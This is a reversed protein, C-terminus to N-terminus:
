PRSERDAEAASDEPSRTEVTQEVLRSNPVSVSGRPTVLRSNLSGVEELRGEHGDVVVTDGLRFNEKVYYAALVNRAVERGGWAFALALGAAVITILNSFTDTVLGIDFGLHDVTAIVTLAILIWRVIAGLREHPTVGARALGADTGRGLLAALLLGVLLLIVAGILRPVYALFAQIPLESLDLGLNGLALVLFCLLVLWFILKGIIVSTPESLGVRTLSDRLGSEEIQRDLGLRRSARRALASLLWSVLIGFLLLALTALITPAYSVARSVLASWAETFFESQMM